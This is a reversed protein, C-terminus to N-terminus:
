LQPMEILGTDEDQTSENISIGSGRELSTDDTSMGYLFSSASMLESYTYATNQDRRKLCYGNRRAFVVIIAIVLVIILFVIAFLLLPVMWYKLSSTPIEIIDTINM